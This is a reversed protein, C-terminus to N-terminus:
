QVKKQFRLCAKDLDVLAVIKNAKSRNCDDGICQFRGAVVNRLAPFDTDDTSSVVANLFEDSDLLVLEFPECLKMDRIAGYSDCLNWRIIGDLGELVHYEHKEGGSSGGERFPEFHELFSEGFHSVQSAETLLVIKGKTTKVVKELKRLPPQV